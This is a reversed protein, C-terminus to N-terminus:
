SSAPELILYFMAKEIANPGQGAQQEFRLLGVGLDFTAM